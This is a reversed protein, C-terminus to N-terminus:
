SDDFTTWEAETGLVDVLSSVMSQLEDIQRQQKEVLEELDALRAAGDDQRHNVQEVKTSLSEMAGSLNEIDGETALGHREPDRLMERNTVIADSVSTSGEPLPITMGPSGTEDAADAAPGSHESEDQTADPNADGPESSM